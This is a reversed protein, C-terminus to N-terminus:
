GFHEKYIAQYAKEYGEPQGRAVWEDYVADVQWHYDSRHNNAAYAALWIIKKTHDFLEEYSKTMLENVYDGRPNGYNDNGPFERRM